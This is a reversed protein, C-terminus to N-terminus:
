QFSGLYMNLLLFTAFVPEAQIDLTDGQEPAGSFFLLILLFFHM